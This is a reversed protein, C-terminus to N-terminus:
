NILKKILFEKYIPLEVDSATKKKKPLPEPLLSQIRQNSLPVGNNLFLVLNKKYYELHWDLLCQYAVILFSGSRVAPNLIHIKSAERSTKDKLLEKVTHNVIYEVIYEPTYYVGGAKKVEQKYESRSM